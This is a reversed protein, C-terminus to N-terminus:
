VPLGSGAPVTSQDLDLQEAEARYRQYSLRGRTAATLVVAWLVCCILVGCESSNTAAAQSNIGKQALLHMYTATGDASAHLLIALLLSAKTNNSLWTFLFALATTAIFFGVGAVAGLMGLHLWGPVYLFLHWGSWLLNLLLSGRVPGFRCQM